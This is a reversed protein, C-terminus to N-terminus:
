ISGDYWPDVRSRSAIGVLAEAERSSKEDPVVPFRAGLHKQWLKSSKNLSDTRVAEEADKIFIDLADFFNSRFLHDHKEVVNDYPRKPMKVNWERKMRSRIGVLTNLLAMDERNAVDRSEDVSLITMALGSLMNHRVNDGWAKLYKSIRHSQDKKHARYWETFGRPDSEEYEEDKVALLPLGAADEVYVPLDIHYDNKYDVRICKKKHEQKHTHGDVAELVWLQLTKGTVDSEREFHVGLDLDCLNEKTQIVNRMKYSGQIYYEPTYAPHKESFHSTIKKKLAERASKLSDEKTSTINIASDFSLFLKNTNAM